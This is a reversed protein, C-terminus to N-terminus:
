TAFLYKKIFVRVQRPSYLVLLAKEIDRLQAQPLDREVEFFYEFTKITSKKETYHKVVKKNIICM